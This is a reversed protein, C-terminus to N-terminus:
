AANAAPDAVQDRRARSRKYIDSWAGVFRDLDAQTTDWGLSVRVASAALDSDAGMAKLVHSPEVKGSSCASGASVMVGALDLNIVQTESALDPVAVCLTNPLRAVDAGFIVADSAGDRVRRETTDRMGALASMHALEQVALEAAVGFGAIGAVNETGARRSREQGGGRLLPAIEIDNALVLAGVGQPGGIKHASLAMMDAGMAAMDVDIKGFAQVADCHFLAGHRHAIEAAEAVPQIVGTENNAAMVSVVTQAGEDKLLVELAALDIVGNGDVPCQVADAVASLVSPHEVASVVVRSRGCGRLALNNAETGGSTFVIGRPDANVARAIQTRADEMTKRAARGAQHVSSPNGTQRLAVTVADAVAPRVPATANYDLYTMGTM